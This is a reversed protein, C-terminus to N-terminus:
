ACPVVEIQRAEDGRDGGERRRGRAPLVRHYQDAAGRRPPAQDGREGRRCRGARACLRAGAGCRDVQCAGTCTCGRHYGAGVEGEAFQQHRYIRDGNVNYILHPWWNLAFTQDPYEIIQPEASLQPLKIHRSLILFVDKFANLGLQCVGRKVIECRKQRQDFCILNSFGLVVESGPVIAQMSELFGPNQSPNQGASSEM